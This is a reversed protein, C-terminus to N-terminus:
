GLGDDVAPLRQRRETSVSPMRWVAADVCGGVGQSPTGAVHLVDLERGAEAAIGLPQRARSRRNHTALLPLYLPTGAM